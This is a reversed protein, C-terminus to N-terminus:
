VKTITLWFLGVDIDSEAGALFILLISSISIRFGSIRVFFLSLRNASHMLLSCSLMFFECLNECPFYCFVHHLFQM